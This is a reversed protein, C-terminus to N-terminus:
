DEPINFLKCVEPEKEGIAKFIKMLEEKKKPIFGLSWKYKTIGM